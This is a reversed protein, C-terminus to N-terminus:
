YFLENIKNNEIKKDLYINDKIINNKFGILFNLENEEIPNYIHLSSGEYEKKKNFVAIDYENDALRYNSLNLKSGDKVAIGLKTNRFDINKIEGISNEGFSLGKDKINSGSLFSGNIIVGSVDLCDNLINECTINEFNLMGFDVDIADAKIDKVILNKILTNSSIINIADESNSNKIQTDIIEVDSQIINIGGYLIKERNKPYSLNQIVVNYFNFKNNSLIISGKGNIGDIIIPKERSGQFLVSGESIISSDNKFSIKVGEQVILKKNSSFYYDRDIVLDTNLYYKGDLYEIDKILSFDNKQINKKYDLKRSMFINESLSLNKKGIFYNCNERFNLTDDKIIYIEKINKNECKIIIKKLFFNNINDFSILKSDLSYQLTQITNIKDLRKKIYNSRNLLYNKDYIYYGAGKYLGRDKKSNDAYLHSNYLKIKESHKKNFKEIFENSSIKTLENLYLDIFEKNLTGNNNKFFTLIWERENCIYGCNKNKPDIFDILLFDKISNTGYHGDFGIPEFKGIVPNYYLKVSKSIVGHVANTLDIVAFYKAWKELDFIQNSNIKKSKLNNLKSIASSTLEPYNKTWFAKSYLDYQVFPFTIGGGSGDSLTEDLGFIPGNRRKNREILEKSFGEEVAYVGNATDNIFLNIFFYKLSILDNAELLRHFIYEYIYNRTIPKQISFEEIGWIRDIGRIDVKYSTNSKDYFHMLRDGKVRLKIRYKEKKHKIQAESFFKLIEENLEGDLKKQRQLELSYLNKQDILITVDDLGNSFIKHKLSGIKISLYDDIEFISFGIYRDLIVRDVTKLFNFPPFRKSM